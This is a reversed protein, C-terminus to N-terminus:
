TEASGSPAPNINLEVTAGLGIQSTIKISGGWSALIQKANWLGIGHGDAGKGVTLPRTLLDSLTDSSIGSGDDNLSILLGRPDAFLNVNVRNAHAEFSNNILNSLIPGLEELRLQYRSDQECRIDTVLEMQLGSLEVRKIELASQVYDVIQRLPTPKSPLSSSLPQQLVDELQMQSTSLFQNAIKDIRETAALLLRREDEHSSSIRHAVVNLASVPSRLDHAVVRASNFVKEAVDRRIALDMYSKLHQSVQNLEEMVTIVESIGPTAKRDESFRLHALSRVREVIVDIPQRVYREIFQSLWFGLGSAIMLSVVIFLGIPGMLITAVLDQFNIQIQAAAPGNPGFNIVLNHQDGDKDRTGLRCIPHQDPRAVSLYTLGGQDFLARCRHFVSADNGSLIDTTILDRFLVSMQQNSANRESFLTRYLSFGFLGLAVLLILIFASIFRLFLIHSLSQQRM